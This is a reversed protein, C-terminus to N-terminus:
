IRTTGTAHYVTVQPIQTESDVGWIIMSKPRPGDPNESWIDNLINIDRVSPLPDSEGNIQRPHVHAVPREGPAVQASVSDRAGSYLKYKGNVRTLALEVGGLQESLAWLDSFKIVNHELIVGESGPYAGLDALETLTSVDGLGPSRPLPTSNVNSYSKSNFTIQYGESSGQQVPAVEIDDAALGESIQKFQNNLLDNGKFLFPAISSIIDFTGTFGQGARIEEIGTEFGNVAFLIGAAPFAEFLPGL